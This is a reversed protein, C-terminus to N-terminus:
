PSVKKWTRSIFRAGICVACNDLKSGWLSRVYGLIVAHNWNQEEDSLPITPKGNTPRNSHTCLLCGDKVRETHRQIERPKHDCLYSVSCQLTPENQELCCPSISWSWSLLMAWYQILGLLSQQEMLIIVCPHLLLFLLLLLKKDVSTPTTRQRRNRFPDCASEGPNIPCRWIRHLIVFSFSFRWLHPLTHIEFPIYVMHTRQLRKKKEEVDKDHLAIDM